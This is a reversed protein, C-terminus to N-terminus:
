PKRPVYKTKRTVSGRNGNVTQDFKSTSVRLKKGFSGFKTRKQVFNKPMKWLNLTIQQKKSVGKMKFCSFARSVGVTKDYKSNM